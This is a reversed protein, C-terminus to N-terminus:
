DIEKLGDLVEGVRVEGGLKCCCRVRLFAEGPFVEWIEAVESRAPVLLINPAFVKGAGERGGGGEAVLQLFSLFEASAGMWFVLM